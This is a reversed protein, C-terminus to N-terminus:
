LDAEDAADDGPERQPTVDIPPQEEIAANLAAIPGSPEARLTAHVAGSARMDELEEITRFGMLVDPYHDRVLFTIARKRLMVEPMSKYKPNKTWGEAKAMEMSAEPGTIVEGTAADVVAARVCLTDGKGTVEYRVTGRIVGRRRMRSLMYAASFGARGSIFYIAQMLTVPEEDLARAMELATYVAEPTKAFHDPVLGSKSIRICHEKIRKIAADDLGAVAIAEGM